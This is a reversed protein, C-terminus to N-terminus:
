VKVITFKVIFIIAAALKDYSQLIIFV